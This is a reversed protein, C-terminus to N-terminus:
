HRRPDIRKGQSQSSFHPVEMNVRSKDPYITVVVGGCCVFVAGTVPHEFYTTVEPHQKQWLYESRDFADYPCSDDGFRERWRKLAHATFTM